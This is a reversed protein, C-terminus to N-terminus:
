CSAPQWAVRSPPCAREFSETARFSAAVAGTAFLGPVALPYVLEILWLLM